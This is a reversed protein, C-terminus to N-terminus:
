DAATSLVVQRTVRPFAMRNVLQGFGQENRLADYIPDVNLYVLWCFREDLAKNLWEIAETKNGLGLHVLAIAYAPVYRQSTTTLNLLSDLAAEAQSRYGGLALAKAVAATGLPFGSTLALCVQHQEIAEEFRGQLEYIQGLFFHAPIFDPDLELTRQCQRLSDDYKRALLYMKGLAMNIAPAMPDLELARKGMTWAEDFRGLAALYWCYWQHATAYAPNLHLAQEFEAEAELWNWEYWFKTLALSAHAEALTDDAKVAKIAASRASAMGASPPSSGYYNLLAYCDALGSYALSYLPDKEIASQFYHMAKAFGAPTRKNWYYRGKLYEWYASGSQTHRKTLREMQDGTLTLNLARAVHESIFDEYSFLDTFDHDLKDAWLLNNGVVDVLQVTVRIQAGSRKIRGSLVTEVLLAKGAEVPDCEGGVYRTVATTPRVVIQTIQSLRTIIADTLGLGLHDELDESSIIAFPLVAVSRSAAPQTAGQGIGERVDAAFCYGRKPLTTIFESENADKGLTKRLNSIHVALNNEEIFINPWVCSMLQQKTMLRRPNKVLALLLDFAKPTLPIPQGDRRLVRDAEDVSFPGFRYSINETSTM